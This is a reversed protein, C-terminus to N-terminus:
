VSSCGNFSSSTLVPPNPLELPGGDLMSLVLKITPRREQNFSACALVIQLCRQVKNSPDSLPRHEENMTNLFTGEKLM